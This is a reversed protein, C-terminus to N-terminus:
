KTARQWLTVHVAELITESDKKEGRLGPAPDGNDANREMNQAEVRRAPCGIVSQKCFELPPRQAVAGFGEFIRRLVM